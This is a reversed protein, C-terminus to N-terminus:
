GCLKLFFIRQGKTAFAAQCKDCIHPRKKEHVARIHINLNGRKRFFKQCHPCPIGGNELNPEEYPLFTSDEPIPLKLKVKLKPRKKELFQCPIEENETKSDELDYDFPSEEAEFDFENPEKKIDTNYITLM